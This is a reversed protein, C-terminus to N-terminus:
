RISLAAESPPLVTTMAAVMGELFTEGIDM